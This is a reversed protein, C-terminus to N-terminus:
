GGKDALAKQQKQSHSCIKTLIGLVGRGGFFNVVMIKQEEKFVEEGEEERNDDPLWVCSGKGMVGPGGQGRLAAPGEAGESMGLGGFGGPWKTM